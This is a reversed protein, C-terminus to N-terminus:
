NPLRVPVGLADLEQRIDSTARGLRNIMSSISFANIEYDHYYEAIIKCSNIGGSIILPLDTLSRALRALDSPFDADSGETEISTLHIEGVGNKGAIGIWDELSYKSLERAGNTFCYYKDSIKRSDIQLVLAQSGVVAALQELLRPCNIAATNLVVKDAGKALTQKVDDVSSIAGGISLPIASYFFEYEHQRLLWNSFGYLSAVTDLVMIEDFENVGVSFDNLSEIVPRIKRVGECQITKIHNGNRADLRAMLRIM